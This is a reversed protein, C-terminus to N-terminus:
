VHLTVRKKLLIEVPDSTPELLHLIFNHLEPDKDQSVLTNLLAPISIDETDQSIQLEEADQSDLIRDRHIIAKRTEVFDKYISTFSGNMEPTHHIWAFPPLIQPTKCVETLWEAVELAGVGDTVTFRKIERYAMPHRYYSLDDNIVICSKPGIQDIARAHGPGTYCAKRNGSLVFDMPKHIDGIITLKFREPVWDLDCNWANEFGIAQRVAQHLFLIREPASENTLGDLTAKIDDKHSYDFGLAECGGLSFQSGDGVYVPWDHLASPWPTSQLDHNGQIFYVHIGARQARDMQRRHISVLDSTPKVTDFLDGVIVAPVKLQIAADIFSSYGLEADGRVSDISSWIKPDLHIDGLAVAIPKTM